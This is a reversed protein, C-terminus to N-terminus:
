PDFVSSVTTLIGRRILPQAKMEVRFQLTDSEVYWQVSLAQEVSLTDKTLDLSQLYKCRDEQPIVNIVSKHNSIFKQLKFGGMKCLNKTSEILSIALEPSSVSKLGDDEYFNREVFKAAENGYQEGYEGAVKKLAFNGCGPSFVGGFLHVTMRYETPQADFNDQEDGFFDSFIATHQTSASKIFCEKFTACSSWM